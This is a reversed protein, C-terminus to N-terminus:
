PAAEPAGADLQATLWDAVEALSAPSVEHGMQYEHYTLDVPLQALFQRAARGEEVPVVADADGHTLLAALRSLDDPLAIRAKVEPLLRGSMIVMGKILNPETLGLFLSMTAGQSFGLLYVRELDTGTDAVLDVLSGVLLERSAEAEAANHRFGSGFQGVTFWCYGDMDIRRPARLSVIHFRPDLAPALEILDRENSGIGHLLILLPATPEDHARPPTDIYYLGTATEM